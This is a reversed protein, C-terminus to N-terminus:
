SGGADRVVKDAVDNMAKELERRITPAGDKMADDFWGKPVSQTVWVDRNGFVPHRIEGRNAARAGGRSKGVVIRVGATRAGTRVAVRQPERAVQEAFGGRRPLRALAEKRSAEILPKAARRMGNTLEKRLETRGAHKLAKSLKLFQEAGRIEFDDAV